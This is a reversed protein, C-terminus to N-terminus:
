GPNRQVEDRAVGAEYGAVAGQYGASRQSIRPWNIGSKAESM